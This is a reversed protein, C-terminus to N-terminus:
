YDDLHTAAAVELAVITSASQPPDGAIGENDPFLSEAVVVDCANSLDENSFTQEGGLANNLAHRGCRMEVQREWPLPYSASPPALPHSTAHVAKATGAPTAHASSEEVSIEEQLQTGEEHLLAQLEDREPETVPDRGAAAMAETVAKSLIIDESYSDYPAVAPQQDM